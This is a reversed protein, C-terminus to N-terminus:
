SLRPIWVRGARRPDALECVVDRRPVGPQELGGRLLVRFEAMWRGSGHRQRVSRRRLHQRLCSRRLALQPRLGSRRARYRRPERLHGILLCWGHGSADRLGLGSQESGVGFRERQFLSVVDRAVMSVRRDALGDSMSPLAASVLVGMVALVVMLEVLTFGRLRKRSEVGTGFDM